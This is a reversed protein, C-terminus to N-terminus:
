PADWWKKFESVSLKGDKNVDCEKFCAATTEDAMEAPTQVKEGAKKMNEIVQDTLVMKYISLLFTKMEAPSIFGDSNEDFANFVAKMKEEETGGCLLAVGCVMEMSDVTGNNDKDFLQFVGTCLDPTPKSMGNSTMLEEYATTFAEKSLSGNTSKAKFAALCKEVPIKSMGCAVIVEGFDKTFNGGLASSSGENVEHKTDSNSDANCCM